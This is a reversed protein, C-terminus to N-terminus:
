RDLTLLLIGREDDSMNEVSGIMSIDGDSEDCAKSKKPEATFTVRRSKPTFPKKQQKLHKLRKIDQVPSDREIDLYNDDSDIMSSEVDSDDCPKLRKLQKSPQFHKSHQVPSHEDDSM